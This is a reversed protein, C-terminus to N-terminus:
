SSMLYNHIQHLEKIHFRLAQAESASLQCFIKQDIEFKPLLDTDINKPDESEDDSDDSVIDNNLWFIENYVLTSLSVSKRRVSGKERWTVHVLIRNPSFVLNKIKVRTVQSGDRIIHSICGYWNHNQFEKTDKIYQQAIEKLKKLNAVGKVFGNYMILDKLTFISAQNLKAQTKPGCGPLINVSDELQCTIM